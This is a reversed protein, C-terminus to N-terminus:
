MAGQPHINRDGSLSDCLSWDGKVDFDSSAKEEELAMYLCEEEFHTSNPCQTARMQYILTTVMMMVLNKMCETCQKQKQDLEDNAAGASSHRGIESSNM